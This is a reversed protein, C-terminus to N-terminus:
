EGKRLKIFSEIDLNMFKSVAQSTLTAGAIADVNGGSGPRYIIYNGGVGKSIDLGRFQDKFIDESIRGGLGPTESHNIFEIGLIQNYDESVGIYGEISGWLGPGGVPFAYGKVDGNEKFTFYRKGDIKEEEINKNFVEEIADPDESTVSIDFVYLIKKRLDTEQLLAVKEATSYNLYSLVFTFVATLLAMFIIPYAFSKKM